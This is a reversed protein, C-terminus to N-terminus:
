VLLQLLELDSKVFFVCLEVLAFDFKVSYLSISGLIM